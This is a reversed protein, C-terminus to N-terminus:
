LLPSSAPPPKQKKGRPRRPLPTRTRLPLAPDDFPLRLKYRTRELKTAASTFECGSPHVLVEGSDEAFHRQWTPRHAIIKSLAWLAHQGPQGGIRILQGGRYYMESWFAHKTKTDGHLDHCVLIYGHERAWILFGTDENVHKAKGVLRVTWVGRAKFGVKRFLTVLEPDCDADVLFAERPEDIWILKTSL